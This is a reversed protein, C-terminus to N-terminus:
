AVVNRAGKVVTGTIPICYSWEDSGIQKYKTSFSQRILQHMGLKIEEKREQTIKSSEKIDQFSIGTCSAPETDMSQYAATVDAVDWVDNIEKILQEDFAKYKATEQHQSIGNHRSWIFRNLSMSQIPNENSLRAEAGFSCRNLSQRILLLNLHSHFTTKVFYKSSQNIKMILEMMEM